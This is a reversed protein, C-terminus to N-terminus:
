RWKFKQCSYFADNKVIEGNQSSLIKVCDAGNAAPLATNNNTSPFTVKGTGTDTVIGTSEHLVKTDPTDMHNYIEVHIVKEDPTSPEAVEEPMSPEVTATGNVTENGSLIVPNAMYMDADLRANEMTRFRSDNLGNVNQKPDLKKTVAFANSSMVSIGLLASLVVGTIKSSM